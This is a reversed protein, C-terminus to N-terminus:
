SFCKLKLGDKTTVYPRQTQLAAACAEGSSSTLNAPPEKEEVADGRLSVPSSLILCDGYLTFYSEQSVPSLLCSCSNDLAQFM